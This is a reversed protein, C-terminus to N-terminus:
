PSRKLRPHGHHNDCRLRWPGGPESHCDPTHAVLRGARTPAPTYRDLTFTPDLIRVRSRPGQSRPSVEPPGPSGRTDRQHVSDSTRRGTGDCVRDPLTPTYPTSGPVSNQVHSPFRNRTASTRTHSVPPGLVRYFDDGTDLPHRDPGEPGRRTSTMPGWLIRTPLCTWTTTFGVYLVGFVVRRKCRRTRLRRQRGTARDESGRFSPPFLSGTHM